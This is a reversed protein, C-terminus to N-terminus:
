FTPPHFRPEFPHHLPLIGNAAGSSEASATVKRESGAAEMKLVATGATLLHWEVSYVYSRGDPFLYNPRPSTIQAPAPGITTIATPPAQQASLLAATLFITCGHLGLLALLGRICQLPAADAASCASGPYVPKLGQPSRGM